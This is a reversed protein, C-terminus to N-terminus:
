EDSGDDDAFLTPGVIVTVPTPETICSEAEIATGQAPAEHGLINSFNNTPEPVPPGACPPATPDHAARHPPNAPEPHHHSAVLQKLSFAPFPEVHYASAAAPIVLSPSQCHPEVTVASPSVPDDLLFYNALLTDLSSDEEDLAVGTASETNIDTDEFPTRPLYALNYAFSTELLPAKLTRTLVEVVSAAAIADDEPLTQGSSPPILVNKRVLDSNAPKHPSDLGLRVRLALLPDANEFLRGSVVDGLTEEDVSHHFHQSPPISDDGSSDLKSTNQAEWDWFGIEPSLHELSRHLRLSHEGAASPESPSLQVSSLSHQEDVDSRSGGALITSDHLSPGHTPQDWATSRDSASAASDGSPNQYCPIDYSPISSRPLSSSSTSSRGHFYLSPQTLYSQEELREPFVSDDRSNASLKEDDDDFSMAEFEDAEWEPETLYYAAM